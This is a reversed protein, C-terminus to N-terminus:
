GEEYYKRLKECRLIAEKINLEQLLIGSEFSLAALATKYANNKEGVGARAQELASQVSLLDGLPSLGNEYRLKLLRAGEQATALAERALGTNLGAEQANLYTEYIKFSIGSKM